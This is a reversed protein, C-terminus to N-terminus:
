LVISFQALSTCSYLHVYTYVSWVNILENEDFGSSSFILLSFNVSSSYEITYKESYKTFCQM